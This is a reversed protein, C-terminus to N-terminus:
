ILGYHVLAKYIGNRDAKDTIFEAVQKIDKTANGMAIGHKVMQILELDNSSDGFGYTNNVDGNLLKTVEIATRGKSVDKRVAECGEFLGRFQSLITVLKLEEPFDKLFGKKNSRLTYMMDFKYVKEGNYEGIKNRGSVYYSSKKFKEKAKKPMFISLKDFFSIQWDNSWCKDKGQMMLCIKYKDCLAIFKKVTEQDIPYEIITKGRFEAYAGMSGIFGDQEVDVQGTCYARGTCIFVKDNKERLEKLLEKNREPITGGHGHSLTGDIDFFLYNDM